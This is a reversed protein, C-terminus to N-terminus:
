QVDIFDFTGVQQHWQTENSAFAVLQKLALNLVVTLTFGSSGLYSLVFVDAGAKLVNCNTEHMARGRKLGDMKAWTLSGDAHFAYEFSVGAMPGDSFTLLLTRGSLSDITQENAM